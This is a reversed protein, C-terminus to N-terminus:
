ELKSHRAWMTEHTENMRQMLLLALADFFILLSQENLTTMPQISTFGEMPKTKSPAHIQVLVDALRGMRSDPNGTVLAIRVGDNKALQVLNYISQTEGSGSSVLLLDEKGLAPVNSDGWTFTRLGLHALRMGFCSTMMGVRGAGCVVINKASLIADMLAEAQSQDIKSFVTKLESLITQIKDSIM